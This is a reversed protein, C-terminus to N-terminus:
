AFLASFDINPTTSPMCTPIDVMAPKFSWKQLWRQFVTRSDRAIEVNEDFHRNYAIGLLRIGRGALAELSLLTHNISGLRSSSVLIVPYGREAVYDVVTISDTLPVCLGGIGEVIVVDYAATLAATADEIRACDIERGALRAALRPSSPFAFRYPCTLGSLDEPLLDVGMLRRHERIDPPFGEGGTQVLKQTIVKRGCGAAYRALLGTVFTKGVGTDIGTIFIVRETGNM